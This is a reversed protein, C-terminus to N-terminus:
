GKLSTALVYKVRFLAAVLYISVYFRDTVQAAAQAQERDM